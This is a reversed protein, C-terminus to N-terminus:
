GGSPAATSGSSRGLIREDIDISYLQRAQLAGGGATLTIPGLDVEVRGEGGPDTSRETSFSRFYSWDLWGEGFLRVRRGVPVFGEVSGRVVISSDAVPNTPDLFVNSDRGANRLELKPNFRLPGVRFRTKPPETRNYQAVGSTAGAISFAVALGALRCAAAAVAVLGRATAAVAPRGLATRGGTGSPDRMNGALIAFRVGIRASRGQGPSTVRGDEHGDERPEVFRRQPPRGRESDSYFGLM